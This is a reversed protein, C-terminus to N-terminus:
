SVVSVGFLYPHVGFIISYAIVGVAILLIDWYFPVKKGSTKAGRRNASWMDFVAFAGFGGFLILSGLDGNVLVHSVAWLTIGWLFPHRIFRKLNNPLYAAALLTVAPLMAALTLHSVWRPLYWIPVEPARAKGIIILALGLASLLSYCILYVPEGKWAVLNKRLRVFSPTLHALMFIAMGLSLLSM